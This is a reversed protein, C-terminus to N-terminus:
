GLRLQDLKKQSKRLEVTDSDLGPEDPDGIEPALKSDALHMLYPPLKTIDKDLKFGLTNLTDINEHLQKIQEDSLEQVKSERYLELDWPKPARPPSSAEEAERLAKGEEVTYALEGAERMEEEELKIKEMLEMGVEKSFGSEKYKKGAERIVEFHRDSVNEDVGPVTDSVSSNSNLLYKLLWPHKGFTEPAHEKLALLLQQLNGM